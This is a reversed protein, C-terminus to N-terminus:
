RKGFMKVAEQWKDQARLIFEIVERAAGNGGAFACVFHVKEKIDLAADAPACAFGVAELCALDNLDDGMYAAQAFTMDRKVCLEELLALKDRNGQYVEKIGLEQARCSLIESSRGTILIVEYGLKQALALGLGDKASFAKMAEGNKGVYIKGDTLTGDVDFVLLSIKEARKVNDM